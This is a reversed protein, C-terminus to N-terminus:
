QKRRWIYVDAEVRNTDPDLWSYKGTLTDADTSVLCFTGRGKDRRNTNSYTASLISDVYSGEFEFHKRRVISNDAKKIETYFIDGIIRGSLQRISIFENCALETDHRAVFESEWEGAIRHGESIWEKYRPLFTDFFFSKLVFMLITAFIGLLVPLIYTQLFVM